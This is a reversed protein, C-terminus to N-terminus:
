APRSLTPCRSASMNGVRRRKIPSAQEKKADRHHGDRNNAPADAACEGQDSADQPSAEVRMAVQEMSARLALLALAPEAFRTKSNQVAAGGEDWTPSRVVM